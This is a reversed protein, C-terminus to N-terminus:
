RVIRLLQFAPGDAVFELGGPLAGQLRQPYSLLLFHGVEERANVRGIAALVEALAAGTPTKFPNDGQLGKMAAFAPAVVIPQKTPDAWTSPVFVARGVGALSAVHKLPPRWLAREEGDRWALTPYPAATAAWLVSGEPLLAFAAMHREFVPEWARWERAIAVGRGALALILLVTGVM